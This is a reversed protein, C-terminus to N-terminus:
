SQREGIAADRGAWGAAEAELEQIGLDKSSGIICDSKPPANSNLYVPRLRLHLSGAM